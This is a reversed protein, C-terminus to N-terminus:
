CLGGAYRYMEVQCWNSFEMMASYPSRPNAVNVTLWICNENNHFQRGKFQQKLLGFLRSHPTIKLTVICGWVACPCLTTATTESPLEPVDV